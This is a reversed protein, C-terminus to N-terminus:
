RKGAQEILAVNGQEIANLRPNWTNPAYWSFREFRAKLDAAEFYRGRRAFIENRAIRLDDKSLRQLDGPTLLRRDSDPFIFGSQVTGEGSEFREILAANAREAANLDPDWTRPVYWAFKSFRATLDPANFYRGRRAFIENRAIRLDDKSLKSLDGESLHRSDSDPFIFDPQTRAAPSALRTQHRRCCRQRRTPRQSRRRRTVPFTSPGTSPRRRYGLSSHAEPPANLSWALRISPRYCM